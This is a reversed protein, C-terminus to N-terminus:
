CGTVMFACIKQYGVKVKNIHGISNGSRWGLRNAILLYKKLELVATTKCDHFLHGNSATTITTQYLKLTYTLLPRGVTPCHKLM